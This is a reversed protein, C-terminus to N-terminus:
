AYTDVRRQAAGGASRWTELVDEVTQKVLEAAQEGAQQVLKLVRLGVAAEVQAQATVSSFTAISTVDSM